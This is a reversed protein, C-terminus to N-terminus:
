TTMIVLVDCGEGPAEVNALLITGTKKNVEKGQLPHPNRLRIGVDSAYEAGKVDLVIQAEPKLGPGNVNGLKPSKSM